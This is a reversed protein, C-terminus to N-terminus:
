GADPTLRRDPTKVQEWQRRTLAFVLTPFGRFVTQREMIMGNKESVRRSAHNLPHVLSIVRGLHLDRFAHDRVAHAAETAIGQNWFGPDLRYAIEIERTEDVEQHLFGCYGILIGSTREIAAFLSPMGAENWALVKELLAATQDPTLLGGSFRMFGNNAFLESLRGLDHATFPRLNLRATHLNM